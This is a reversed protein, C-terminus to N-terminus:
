VTKLEVLCNKFHNIRNQKESIDSKLEEIRKELMEIWGNCENLGYKIAEEKNKFFTNEYMMEGEITLNPYGYKECFTEILKGDHITFIPQLNNFDDKEDIIQKLVGNESDIIMEEQYRKLDENTSWGDNYNRNKYMTVFKGENNLVIIDHYYPSGICIGKETKQVLHEIKYKEKLRKIGM